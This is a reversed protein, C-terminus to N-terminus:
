WLFFSAFLLLAAVSLGMALVSLTQSLRPDASSLSPTGQYALWALPIALFEAGLFALGRALTQRWNTARWILVIFILAWAPFIWLAETEGGRGTALSVVAALFLANLLGMGVGTVQVM